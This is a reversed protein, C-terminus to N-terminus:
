AEVHEIEGYETYVTGSEPRFRVVSTGVVDQPFHWADEIPIVGEASSFAIVRDQTQIGAITGREDLVELPKSHGKRSIRM